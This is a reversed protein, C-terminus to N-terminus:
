VEQAYIIPIEVIFTDKTQQIEITKKALLKYQENVNNLARGNTPKINKKLNINNSVHINEALNITICIPNEETGLNHQVANEILLQLTLPVIFGDDNKRVINMQYAKGYKHEILRFYQEAFALEENLPIITKDSSQLVYRYIEAFEHLFDSARQKDEEILQDLVNLNNFLFHPNLQSKLQYIKSESLAQHYNALQQQHNKSKNYYYYVLFFSGYILGDLLDSFLTFFLTEQNFNREINGFIFAIFFGILNMVLLYMVLSSGAIKLIEKISFITSKQWRRISFLIIIFLIGAKFLISIAGDPTFIYANIEQRVTIRMYITQLYAFLLIFLLFGRNIYTKKLWNKM